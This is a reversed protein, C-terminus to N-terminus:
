MPRRMAAAIQRTASSAPMHRVIEDRARAVVRNEVFM